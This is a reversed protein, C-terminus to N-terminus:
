TTSPDAVLRASTPVVRVYGIQGPTQEYYRQRLRWQRLHSVETRFAGPAVYYRLVLGIGLRWPIMGDHM